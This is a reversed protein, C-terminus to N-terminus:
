IKKKFKSINAVLLAFLIILISLIQRNTIVEGLVLYGLLSAFIINAFRLPQLKGIEILSYAKAIAIREYMYGCVLILVLWINGENINPIKGKIVFISTVSIAFMRLYVIFSSPYSSTLKKLYIFGISAVFLNSFLILYWFLHDLDRTFDISICVGFFCIMMAVINSIAIKEKLMLYALFTMIFPHLYMLLTANNIPLHSWSLNAAYADYIGCLSTIIIFKIDTKKIHKFNKLQFPTLLIMAITTKIWISEFISMANTIAAYKLTVMTGIISFLGSLYLIHPFYKKM